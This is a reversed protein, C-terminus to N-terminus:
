MLKNKCWIGIRRRIGGAHMARSRFSYDCKCDTDRRFELGTSLRARNRGARSLSNSEGLLQTTDTALRVLQRCSRRMMNAQRRM